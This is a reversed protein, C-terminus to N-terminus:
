RLPEVLPSSTFPAFPTTQPIQPFAASAFPNYRPHQSSTGEGLRPAPIDHLYVIPLDTRHVDSEVPHLPAFDAPAPPPIFPEALSDVLTPLPDPILPAIEPLGFPVHDNAPIPEPDVPAVDPQGFHIPDPESVHEPDHPPSPATSMATDNDSDTAFLQLGPAQLASSTVSEFSDSVSHLSSDSSIEIIPIVPPPVAVVDEDIEGVAQADVPPCDVFLDVDDDFLDDFPWDEPPIVVLPDLDLIPAVNHEGDPNGIILYDHVPVPIVFPDEDPFSDALPFDDGFGLLAFPQFDDEDESLMDPDSETDSTFIEPEPAIEDDSVIAM